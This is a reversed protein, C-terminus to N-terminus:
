IHVSRHRRNCYSLDAFSLYMPWIFDGIDEFRVPKQRKEAARAKRMSPTLMLKSADYEEPVLTLASRSTFLNIHERTAIKQSIGDLLENTHMQIVVPYLPAEAASDTQPRHGLTVLM